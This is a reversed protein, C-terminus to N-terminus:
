RVLRHLAVMTLPAYASVAWRPGDLVLLVRSGACRTQIKHHMTVAVPGLHVIWSWMRAAEDIETVTFPVRLGAFSIVSGAAGLRVRQDASEVARIQPSWTPWLAFRSLRDWVLTPDAPGSVALQRTAM